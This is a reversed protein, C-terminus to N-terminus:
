QCTKLLLELRNIKEQQATIKKEYERITLLSFAIMASVLTVLTFLLLSRKM